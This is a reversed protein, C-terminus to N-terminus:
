AAILPYASTMMARTKKRKKLAHGTSGLGLSELFTHGKVVPHTKKTKGCVKVSKGCM